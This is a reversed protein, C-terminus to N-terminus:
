GPLIGAKEAPSEEIVQKVVFSEGEKAMIIGVGAYRGDLDSEFAEVEEKPYYVSYKDLASLMGQIAGAMMEDDSVETKYM